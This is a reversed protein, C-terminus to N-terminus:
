DTTKNFPLKFKLRVVDCSSNLTAMNQTSMRQCDKPLDITDDVLETSKKARAEVFYFGRGCSKRM